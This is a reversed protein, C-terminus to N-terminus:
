GAHNGQRASGSSGPAETFSKMARCKAGTSCMPEHTTGGGCYPGGTLAVILSAFAQKKLMQILLFPHILKLTPCLSASLAVINRVAPMVVLGDRRTTVHVTQPIQATIVIAASAKTHRNPFSTGNQSSQCM